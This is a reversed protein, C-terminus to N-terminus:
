WNKFAGSYWKARKVAHLVLFVFLFIALKDHVEILHFRVVGSSGMLDAFWPVLGTIAVLLFLTTLIFVQLHKGILQKSVVGKYWKWHNHIHYIMLLSFIVIVVKHTLSWESYTLGGVTKHM